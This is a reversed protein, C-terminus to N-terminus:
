LQINFFLLGQCVVYLHELFLANDGDISRQYHLWTFLLLSWMRCHCCAADMELTQADFTWLLTTSVERANCFILLNTMSLNAFSLIPQLVSSCSALLWSVRFLEAIKFASHGNTCNLSLTVASVLNILSCRSHVRHFIAGTFIRGARSVYIKKILFAERIVSNMLFKLFENRWIFKQMHIWCLCICCCSQFFM